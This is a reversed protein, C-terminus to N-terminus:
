TMMKDMPIRKCWIFNFQARREHSVCLLPQTPVVESLAFCKKFHFGRRLEKPSYEKNLSAPKPTNPRGSLSEHESLSLTCRLFRTVPM